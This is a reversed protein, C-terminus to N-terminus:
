KCDKNGAGPLALFTITAPDFSFDGAAVPVGALDPLEDHAGLKLETGNLRVEASRLPSASLTYRRAAAPISLTRAADRDNNIVLLAVGGPTGRLSHAYVHLGKQIPVGSDLVTTGM